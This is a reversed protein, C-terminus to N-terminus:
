RESGILARIKAQIGEDGPRWELAQRYAALAGEKDGAEALWDGLQVAWDWPQGPYLRIAERLWETAEERKGQHYLTHALFYASWVHQPAMALATRFSAEATPYEEKLFYALGIFYKPEYRDPAVKEAKRYWALAEDV